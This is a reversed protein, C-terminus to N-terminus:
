RDLSEDRYSAVLLVPVSDIRRTLIRVVDLTAEDAWHLDELMLITPQRRRLDHMLAQAVESAAALRAVIAGLEGGTEEAIEVFPGLARPPFLPDCGGRVTSVGRSSDGFATLLATKGIGAEGTVLAVRGRG